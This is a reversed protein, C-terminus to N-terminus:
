DSGSFSMTSTSSRAPPPVQKLNRHRRWLRGVLGSTGLVVVVVGMIVMTAMPPVPTSTKYSELFERTMARNDPEVNLEGSDVLGQLFAPYPTVESGAGVERLQQRMWKWQCLRGNYANIM